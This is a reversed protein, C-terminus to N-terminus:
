PYSDMEHPRRLRKPLRKELALYHRLRQCLDEFLTIM